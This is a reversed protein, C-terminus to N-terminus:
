LDFFPKIITRVIESKLRIKLAKEKIESAKRLRFGHWFLQESLDLHSYVPLLFLPLLETKVVQQIKLIKQMRERNDFM